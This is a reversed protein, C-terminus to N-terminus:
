ETPSLKVIAITGSSELFLLFIRKSEIYIMDRVREKLEIHEHMKVKNESYEIRHFSQRGEGETYGLSVFYLVHNNNKSLIFKDEKIIQTIGISPIFNMLPEIYGYREHSKKLPCADYIKKKFVEDTPYHDGYSATGWGYNKITFEENLNNINIEDGGQPGHETSYIINESKDYFLGQPNRHGKSLIAFKKTNENVKIIKGALHNNDQAFNKALKECSAFDGITILIENNKYKDMIGGSSNTYIPMCENMKFFSKFYLVNKNFKAHLIETYYCNDATPNFNEGGNASKWNVLSVYINSNKIIIDKFIEEYKHLYDKNIFDNLNTNIKSFSLQSKNNLDEENIFYIEGTGTILFIKNEYYELSARRGSFNLIENSFKSIEINKKDIFHVEKKTFKLNLFKNEQIEKKKILILDNNKLLQQQNQFKNYKDIFVKYFKAYSIFFFFILIIFIFIFIIKIKSKKTM